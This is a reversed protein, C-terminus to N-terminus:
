RAQRQELRYLIFDTAVLTGGLQRLLTAVQGRHYTSHNVVHTILDALSARFAEGKVNRYDIDCALAADDREKLWAARAQEVETLAIRLVTCDGTAWAPPSTPSEGQWRQFWVWEVVVVHAVTDRVSAFSGGLPRTLDADSCRALADFMRANAWQDYSM